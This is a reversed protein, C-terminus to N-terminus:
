RRSGRSSYSGSSGCEWCWFGSGSVGKDSDDGDSGEELWDDFGTLVKANPGTTGNLFDVPVGGLTTMGLASKFAEIVGATSNQHLRPSEFESPSPQEKRAEVRSAPRERRQPPAGERHPGVKMDVQRGRSTGKEPVGEKVGSVPARGGSGKPRGGGVARVRDEDWKPQHCRPCQVPRGEVRSSWEHGCKRCHYREGIM